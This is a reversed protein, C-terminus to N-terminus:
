QTDASIRDKSKLLSKWTIDYDLYDDQTKITVKPDIISHIQKIEQCLQDLQRAALEKQSLPKSEVNMLKASRDSCNGEYKGYNSYDKKISYGQESFIINLRPNTAIGEALNHKILAVATNADQLQISATSYAQVSLIALIGLTLIFTSVLVEILSVGHEQNLPKQRKYCM